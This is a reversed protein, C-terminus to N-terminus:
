APRELVLLMDLITFFLRKDTVGAPRDAQALGQRDGPPLHRGTPAFGVTRV